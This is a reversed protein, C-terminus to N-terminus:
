PAMGVVCSKSNRNLRRRSAAFLVSEFERLGRGTQGPEDDAGRRRSGMAEAPPQPDLGSGRDLLGGCRLDDPSYRGDEDTQKAVVLGILRNSSMATDILQVYENQMVVIPVVMKPFLAVDVLPLIPLVDPINKVSFDPSPQETM